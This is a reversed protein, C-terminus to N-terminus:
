LVAGCAAAISHIANLQQLRHVKCRINVSYQIDAHQHLGLLEGVEPFIAELLEELRELLVEPIVERRRAVNHAVLYQM